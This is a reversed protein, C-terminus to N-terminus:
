IAVVALFSLALCFLVYLILIVKARKYNAEQIESDLKYRDWDTAYYDWREGLRKKLEITRM